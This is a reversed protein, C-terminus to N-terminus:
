YFQRRDSLALTNVKRITDISFINKKKYFQTRDENKRQYSHQFFFKYFFQASDLM